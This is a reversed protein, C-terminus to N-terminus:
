GELTTHFRKFSIYIFVLALLILIGIHFLIFQTDGGKLMINRLLYLFHAIPDLYSVWKMPEPMNELPFMLGSLLIAPFLFLFGGITAQQQTKAFTSILIGISVTSCIYVFAALFLVLLSGLMPVDFVFVAVALILPVDCMGIIVYPITKGLIVELPSIPASILMEFTGMEKERTISMSTLIVTALTILICMVGPVMFYATELNPNFLVRTVFQVPITQPKIKFDQQVVKNGITKVYSEVSQAQIVNTADLLVQLKANERGLAKTLGGPPPILAADIQGARLLEYPDANTNIKSPLFWGSALCHEYIHQLVTDNPGFSSWLRINRVDTSIAVGFLVLQIIPAVFLLIRMRPDRLTQKFEKRLFGKLVGWSIM